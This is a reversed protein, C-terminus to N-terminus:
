NQATKCHLPVHGSFNNGYLNLSELVTLFGISDPIRGSLENNGLNLARLSQWKVFCDPLEGSLHNEALNLIQLGKNTSTSCLFESLGGSFSNNSLDLELFLPSAMVQPLPGSFRNSSLGFFSSFNYYRGRDGISLINGDLQNHSLNLYGLSLSWLWSPINGYIGTCSLDLQFISEKQTELWLPIRSGMDWSRLRLTELKFPPIWNPNVKLSLHNGFTEPLNGMLKNDGLFLGELFLLNGIEPIVSSLSNNSLDLTQLSRFEGFQHPLHGSIQNGSLDLSILSGLFCDSMNGFSDWIEGGLNNGWLNLTQINCLNAIDRPIKGSLENQSLDLFQLHKCSYLWQPISSNLNNSSLDIHQLKTTNSMTPIRGHFSNFFMDLYILNTLQFIWPPIIAYPLSNWSLDLTALDSRSIKVDNLPAMLNLNCIQQAWNIAKSLNVGDMNLHKLKPLGSLWELSDQESTGLSLGRLNSLNGINHPIKGHFGAFSLDLYVLSTLSGTFSPIKEHFNNYSLDLYKLHKLDLLSSSLKGGLSNDQLDLVHGTINSCVVCKWLCCDVKSDWSSLLKFPDQLSQKFSLLSQTETEPCSISYLPRVSFFLLVSFMSALISHKSENMNMVAFIYHHHYSIPLTPDQNDMCDQGTFWVLRIYANSGNTM